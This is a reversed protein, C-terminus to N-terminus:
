GQNMCSELENLLMDLTDFTKDPVSNFETETGKKMKSLGFTVTDSQISYFDGMYHFDVMFAGSTFELLDWRIEKQNLKQTITKILEEKVM